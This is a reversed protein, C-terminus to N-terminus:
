CTVSPYNIWPFSSFRACVCHCAASARTRAVGSSSNRSIKAKDRGNPTEVSLVHLLIQTGSDLKVNDTSSVIVPGPTSASPASSLSLGKLGTVGQPMGISM